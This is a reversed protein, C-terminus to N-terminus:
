STKGDYDRERQEKTPPERSRDQAFPGPRKEPGNTGIETWHGGPKKKDTGAPRDNEATM